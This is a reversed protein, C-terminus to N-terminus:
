NNLGLINGLRNLDGEERVIEAMLEPLPMRGWNVARRLLYPTPSHPEVRSLFDAIAELAAYAQERNTWHTLSVAPHASIELAPGADAATATDEIMKPGRNAPVLQHLVREIAGLTNNLKSLNPAQTGLRADVYDSVAKVTAICGRVLQTSRDVDAGLHTAAYLIIESRTPPAEAGEPASKRAEEARAPSLETATMREWDALSFKSALGASRRLIPIQVKITQAISENIWDLPAVRSDADGDDDLLPHLKDWFENLLREVLVLGRFLGDFGHQRTWAEALWAAIQLDKSQHSLVAKCRVEILSWDARKLPREWVGMPLNPDDEERALRIETFVPDFRMSQGCPDADSLPRVLVNLEDLQEPTLLAIPLQTSSENM